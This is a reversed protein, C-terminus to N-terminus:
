DATENLSTGGSRMGSPNECVVLSLVQTRWSWVIRGYRVRLVSPQLGGNVGIIPIICRLHDYVRAFLNLRFLLLFVVDARVTGLM